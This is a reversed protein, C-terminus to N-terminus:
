AGAESAGRVGWRRQVWAPPRYAALIALAAGLSILRSILQWSDGENLGTASGVISSGFWVIIAWSVVGIRYRVTRDEVKFYLSFYGLAGLIQPGLLLLVLLLNNGGLVGENEYRVQATWKRVEVGAPDAVAILYALYVYYAGYFAALPVLIGRKGTYLFILYYALGFLAVVLVLILGNLLAESLAANVVDLAATAANFGGYVSTAALGYWWTVFLGKALKADATVPRRSVVFGIFAYVTAALLSFAAGALLTSASM